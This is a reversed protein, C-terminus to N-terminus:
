LKDGLKAFQWSLVIAITVGVLGRTLALFFEWGVSLGSLSPTVFTTVFLAKAIDLCFSSLINALKYDLVM